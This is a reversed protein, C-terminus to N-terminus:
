SFLFVGHIATRITMSKVIAKAKNLSIFRTAEIVSKVIYPVNMVTFAARITELYLYGFRLLGNLDGIFIPFKGTRAKRPPTVEKKMNNLKSGFTMMPPIIKVM